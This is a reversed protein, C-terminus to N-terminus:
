YWVDQRYYHGGEVNAEDVVNAVPYPAAYIAVLSKTTSGLLSRSGFTTKIQTLQGEV